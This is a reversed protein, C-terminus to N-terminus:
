AACPVIGGAPLDGTRWLELSVIRKRCEARRALLLRRLCDGERKLWRLDDHDEESIPDSGSLAAILADIRAIDRRVADSTMIM